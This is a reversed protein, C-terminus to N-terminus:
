WANRSLKYTIYAILGPRQPAPVSAVLGALRAIQAELPDDEKARRVRARRDLEVEAARHEAALRAAVEEDGGLEVFRPTGVVAVAEGDRRVLVEYVGGVVYGVRHKFYMETGSEDIWAAVRTARRGQRTGGYVWREVTDPPTASTTDTM